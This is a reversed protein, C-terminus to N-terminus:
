EEDDDEEYNSDDRGFFREDRKPRERERVYSEAREMSREMRSQQNRGTGEEAANRENFWQLRSIDNNKLQSLLFGGPKTVEKKNEHYHAMNIIGEQVWEEDGDVAEYIANATSVAVQQTGPMATEVENQLWQVFDQPAPPAQPYQQRNGSGGQNYNGGNNRYRPEPDVHVYQKGEAATDEDLKYKKCIEQLTRAPYVSQMLAYVYADHEITDRAIAELLEKSVTVM